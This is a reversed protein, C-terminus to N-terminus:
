LKKIEMLWHCERILFFALEILNALNVDFAQHLNLYRNVEINSIGHDFIMIYKFIVM